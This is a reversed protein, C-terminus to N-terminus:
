VQTKVFRKISHIEQVAAIAATETRLRYRGLSVPVFGNKIAQDVEKETFDGEPGILICHSASSINSHAIYKLDDENLHAILKNEGQVTKWFDAIPLLETMEPLTAKGSQKM